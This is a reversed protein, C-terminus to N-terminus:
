SKNNEPKECGCFCKENVQLIENLDWEYKLREVKGRTHHKILGEAQLVKLPHYLLAFYEKRSGLFKAWDFTGSARHFRDLEYIDCLSDILHEATTQVKIAKNMPQNKVVEWLKQIAVTPVEKRVVKANIVTEIIFVKPSKSVVMFYGKGKKRARSQVIEKVMPSYNSLNILEEDKFEFCKGLIAVVDDILSIPFVWLFENKDLKTQYTSLGKLPTYETILYPLTLGFLLKPIM